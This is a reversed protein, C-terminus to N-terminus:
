LTSISSTIRRKRFFHWIRPTFIIIWVIHEVLLFWPSMFDFVGQIPAINLPYLHNWAWGGQHTLADAIIHAIAGIGIPLLSKYLLKGIIIVAGWLWISNLISGILFDVNSAYIDEHALFSNLLQEPATILLFPITLFFTADPIVSGVIAYIREKKSKKEYILYGVIAHSTTLM